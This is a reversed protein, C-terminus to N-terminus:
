RKCLFEILHIFRQNFHEKSTKFQDIQQYLDKITATYKFLDPKCKAAVFKLPFSGMFSFCMNNEIQIAARTIKFNNDSYTFHITDAKLIKELKELREGILTKKRLAFKNYLTIFKDLHTSDPAIQDYHFLFDYDSLKMHHHYDDLFEVDIWNCLIGRQKNKIKPDPERIEILFDKFFIMKADSNNLATNYLETLLETEYSELKVTM